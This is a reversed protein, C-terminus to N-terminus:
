KPAKGMFQKILFSFGPLIANIRMFIRRFRGEMASFIIQKYSSFIDSIHLISVYASNFIHLSRFYTKTDFFKKTNKRPFDVSVPKACLYIVHIVIYLKMGSYLIQADEFDWLRFLSFFKFPSLKTSIKIIALDFSNKHDFIEIGMSSITTLFVEDIGMSPGNIAMLPGWPVAIAM